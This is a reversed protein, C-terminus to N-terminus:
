KKKTNLSDMLKLQKAIIKTMIRDPYTSILIEIAKQAEANERTQSLV